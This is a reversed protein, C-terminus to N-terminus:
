ERSRLVEHTVRALDADTPLLARMEPPLTAYTSVAMPQTSGRLAYQVVESNRDAAILIGLTADDRSPDRVKDDVVATYFSLQGLHAPQAPVTKLEIVVYRHLRLHYFLLDMRFEQDGVVLPYQRGVFAFGVGLEQLFRVVHDVLADELDREAHDAGVRTFELLYPDRTIERLLDSGEPVTTDFNTLAMGQRLHLQSSVMNSLFARSWGHQVAQAAYFDRTLRDDLTDLLVTIHGWPLQAVAQQGIAEPWSKALHQMYRLSRPSLGRQGPFTTQLDVSLRRIVKTGWGEEEQRDLILRGIRWYHCVMETNVIRKVRIQTTRIEDKIDGLLDNYGPPLDGATAQSPLGAKTTIENSM